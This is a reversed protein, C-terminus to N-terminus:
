KAPSRQAGHGAGASDEIPKPRKKHIRDEDRGMNLPPAEVADVCDALLADTGVGMANAIAVLSQLSPISNGREINAYFSMSIQARKAVDERSLGMQRRRACIRNGVATFDVM